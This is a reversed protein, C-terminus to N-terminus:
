KKESRLFRRLIVGKRSYFPRCKVEIVIRKFWLLTSNVLRPQWSRNKHPFCLLPSANLNFRLPLVSLLFPCLAQKTQVSLFPPSPPFPSPLPAVLQKKNSSFFLFVLCSIPNHSFELFSFFPVNEARKGEMKPTCKPIDECRFFPYM